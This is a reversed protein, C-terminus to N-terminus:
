FQLSFGVEYNTPTVKPYINLSYSSKEHLSNEHLKVIKLGIFTGLAAGILTDSLWHVDSYIRQYATLSALSYLAVSAYVNNIRESLVTAVTFATSTHGSPFSNEDADFEFMFIDFDSFGDHTYPRARGFVSKLVTTYIGNVILAEALMQGTIKTYNDATFFGTTYLAISLLGGYVPHGFQKGVVTLNDMTVNHNRSIQNRVRNDLSFSASTMALIVGTMIMDDKDFYYPSKLVDLSTNLSILADEYFVNKLGEPLNDYKSSFNNQSFLFTPLVFLILIIKKKM